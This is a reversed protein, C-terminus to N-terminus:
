AHHTVAKTFPICCVRDAIVSNIRCLGRQNVLPAAESAARVAIRRGEKGYFASVGLYRRIAAQQRYRTAAGLSGPGEIEISM